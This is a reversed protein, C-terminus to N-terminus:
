NKELLAGKYPIGMEDLKKLFHGICLFYYDSNIRRKICDQAFITRDNVEQLDHQYFQVNDSVRQGSHPIAQGGV